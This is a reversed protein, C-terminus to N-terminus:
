KPASVTAHLPTDASSGGVLVTREGPIQVWGKAQISWYAFARAPILISMTTSKGPALQVKDFGALAKAPMAVPANAPAALYVQAAEAGARKGANTVTFSVRVADGAAVTKLDSYRFQTYSQGYGFPYLPKIGRTDYWRYGVLLGETYRVTDNEPEYREAHGPEMLPTQSYTVPFTIPLKGSPNAKGTLLDATAWGGEQGPFWMELIGKVKDHWPMRVPSATNLVVIVNPNVSAVADILENQQDPLMLNEDANVLEGSKGWAFVIPTKVRRALAVADAVTKRQMEPTVWALKIQVPRDTDGLEEISIAYTKGTELQQDSQGNDLGDLTPLLSTWKKPVGHFPVKASSTIQQGDLKLIASGGWSQIMLKYRGTEPVTLAGTWVANTKAALARGGVFDLAADASVAEGQRRELGPAGAPTKLFATPIAIGSQDSGVAYDAKIGSRRLADLPSIERAEFGYARGNGPGVALQGGTAGIVGVSGSAPKLPLINGENRLLVGSEVAITRAIAAEGEVDIAKPAPVQKGDLMGFKEMQTLIRGVPVDIESADVQGAEIAEQLKDGYYHPRKHPQGAVGYGPMELDLGARLGYVTSHLAGWDSMTFGDWGFQHRQIETLNHYNETSWFGNTHSYAAMSAAVGAKYVAEYPILYFEQLTREDIRVDIPSTPGSVAPSGGYYGIFHKVNAMTGTDQIGKVEAVALKAALLPDEGLASYNRGWNPTRALDVQPGNILNSGTARADSGLVHGFEYARKENFTAALNIGTPVATTEFQNEIGTPGNVLSLAPIGLRPVGPLYGSEGVSKPNPRGIMMDLKEALTMQSLLQRVKPSWSPMQAASSPASAQAIAPQAACLIAAATSALMLSKFNM